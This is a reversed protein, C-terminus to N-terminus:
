QCLKKEILECAKIVAGGGFLTNYGNEKCVLDIGHRVLEAISLGCATALEQVEPLKGKRIRINLQEYTKRNYRNKVETSTYAM